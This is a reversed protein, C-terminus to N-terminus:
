CCAPAGPAPAAADASAPETAFPLAGGCGPFLGYHRAFDGHYSFYPSLRTQQLMRWTNGCVPVIRGTEFHHHADLDFAHAQGPIAPTRL